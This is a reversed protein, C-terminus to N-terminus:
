PAVTRILWYLCNGVHCFALILELKTLIGRSVGASACRFISTCKHIIYHASLRAGKYKIPDEENTCIVLVVM